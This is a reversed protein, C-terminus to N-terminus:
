RAGAVEDLDQRVFRVLEEGAPSAVAIQELEADTTNIRQLRLHDHDGPGHLWLGAYSFGQTRMTEVAADPDAIAELDLDAYVVNVHEALLMRLKAVAEHALEDNWGGITLVSTRTETDRAVAIGDAGTLAEVPSPRALGLRDYTALLRDRYREPLAARRPRRHLPLFSVMLATPRGPTSIGRMTVAPFAALCLATEHYGVALEARQSYPHMTVARGYVAQVGAGRALGLTHESMRGFIGLGRYAPAVVAAGTEAAWPDPERMLAHHGVIENGDLAVSSMVRRERLEEHVWRPRYFDPHLYSLAYNEYVLQAIPEADEPRAERVTIAAADATAAARPLADAAGAAVALPETTVWAFSLRKGDAGLNVLRLDEVASGLQPLDAADETSTLPRGWDHVAVRVGHEAPELTVEITGAPDGPYARECVFRVAEALTAALAAGGADSVGVVRAFERGSARVVPLLREDSSVTVSALM